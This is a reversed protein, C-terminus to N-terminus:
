HGFRTKRKLNASAIDDKSRPVKRSETHERVAGPAGGVGGDPGQPPQPPQPKVVPVIPTDEYNNSRNPPRRLVVEDEDERPLPPPPPTPAVVESHSRLRDPNKKFVQRPQHQNFIDAPETDAIPPPPPPLPPSHAGGGNQRLAHLHPPGHVPSPDSPLDDLGATEVDADSATKSNDLVCASDEESDKKLINNGGGETVSSRCPCIYRLQASIPSHQQPHFYIFKQGVRLQM